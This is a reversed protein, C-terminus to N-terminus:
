SQERTRAGWGAAGAGSQAPLHLPNELHEVVEIAVVVDFASPFAAGFDTGLDVPTVPLSPLRSEYDLDWAVVDAFGNDLTAAVDSRLGRWRRPGEPEGYRRRISTDRILREAEEHVGPACNMPIGRYASAPPTRSIFPRRGM